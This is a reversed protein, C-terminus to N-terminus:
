EMCARMARVLTPRITLVHRMEADAHFPDSSADIDVTSRWELAVEEDDRAHIHGLM